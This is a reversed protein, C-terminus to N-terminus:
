VAAPEAAVDGGRDGVAAGRVPRNQRLAAAGDAVARWCAESLEKRSGFREPEIPPHLLITARCGVLQALQWFHPGLAMDGYWAFVPRAARVMPLGALRDYVVSVPQILPREPGEAISFFASRFPLVRAGDSSTGEPFLILNDGGALRARMADRERATSARSRSVFVTRGLRAITGVVPWTGVSAKSVFSGPLRGGLAPIDLWSSHNSVYIVPRGGAHVPVGILRVRMGMLRCVVRWFLAAFWIKARGLRPGPLALLLAQTPVSVILWVALLASRRVARLSRGFRPRRPPPPNDTFWSESLNGGGGPFLSAPKRLTLRRPRAAATM